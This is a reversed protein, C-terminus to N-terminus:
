GACVFQAKCWQSFYAPIYKTLTRSAANAIVTNALNYISTMVEMEEPSEPAALKSDDIAEVAVCEWEPVSVFKDVDVPVCLGTPLGLPSLTAEWHYDDLIEAGQPTSSILGLM